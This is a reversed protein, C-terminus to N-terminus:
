PLRLRTWTRLATAVPEDAAINGAESGRLSDQSRLHIHHATPRAVMAPLAIANSAHCGQSCQAGQSPSYLAHDQGSFLRNAAVSARDLRALLHPHAAGAIECILQSLQDPKAVRSASSLWVPASVISRKSDSFYDM